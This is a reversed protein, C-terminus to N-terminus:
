RPKVDHRINKALAKAVPGLKRTGIAKEIAAVRDALDAGAVDGLAASLSIGAVTAAAILAGAPVQRNGLEWGSLTSQKLRRKGKLGMVDSLATAFDGQNMRSEDRARRFARSAVKNYDTAAMRGLKLM